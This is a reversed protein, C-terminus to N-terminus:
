ASLQQRGAAAAGGQVADVIAQESPLVGGYSRLPEIPPPPAGAHSLALRLEDELQGHSAEVVVLQRLQPLLPLLLRVPFPWLTLPRLLGALVGKARLAEVAGKAMRAPTNCAVLLVDADDCRFLEARQERRAMEEYKAVLRRNHAELEQESLHISSVLNRRHAADGWVAWPPLGPQTYTRPLEVRGTVQGLYGDAVVIAPNRYALSLEFALRTLDLMEQPSSPALVIAQTNGHGLGRCALKIDSQEPAINGLGPGGRMVNVV